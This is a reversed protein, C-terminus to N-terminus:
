QLKYNVNLKFTTARVPTSIINVQMLSRIAAQALIAPADNLIKIDTISGDPNVIFQMAVISEVGSRRASSPYRFHRAFDAKIEGDIKRIEASDTNSNGAQAAVPKPEPPPPPPPPVASETVVTPEVPREPKPIPLIPPRSIVVPDPLIEPIDASEEVIEPEVFKAVEDVVEPPEFMKEFTSSSIMTVQVVSPKTSLSIEEVENSKGPTVLYLVGAHLALSASFPFIWSRM